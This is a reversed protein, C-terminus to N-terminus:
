LRQDVEDYDYDPSGGLKYLQTQSEDNDESGGGNTEMDSLDQAELETLLATAEALTAQASITRQFSRSNSEENSVAATSSPPWCDSMQLILLLQM